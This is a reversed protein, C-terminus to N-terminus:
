RLLTISNLKHYLNKIFLTPLRQSIILKLHTQYYFLIIADNLQMRRIVINITFDIMGLNILPTQVRM